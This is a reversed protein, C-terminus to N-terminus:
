CCSSTRTVPAAAQAQAADEGIVGTLTLVLWAALLALVMGVIPLLVGGPEREPPEDDVLEPPIIEVEATTDGANM